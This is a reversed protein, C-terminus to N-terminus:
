VLDSYIGLDLRFAFCGHGPLSYITGAWTLRTGSVNAFFFSTWDVSADFTGAFGYTAVRPAWDGAVVVHTSRSLTGTLGAALTSTGGPTEGGTTTFTGSDQTMACFTHADVRYVVVTKTYSATAWLSGDPAALPENAIKLSVYAVRAGTCVSTDARARAPLVVGLAIALGVLIFARKM